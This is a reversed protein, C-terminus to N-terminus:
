SANGPADYSSNAASQVMAIAIPPLLVTWGVLWAISIVQGKGNERARDNLLDGITVLLVPMGFPVLLAIPVAANPM